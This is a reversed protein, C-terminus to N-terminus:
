LMSLTLGAGKNFLKESIAQSDIGFVLQDWVMDDSKKFACDKVLLKLETQFHNFPEGSFFVWIENMQNQHCM